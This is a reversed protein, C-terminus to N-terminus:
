IPGLRVLAQGAEVRDGPAVLVDLVVGAVRAQVVRGAGSSPPRPARRRPAGTCHQCRPTTPDAATWTDREAWVLGCSSRGDDRIRHAIGPRGPARRWPPQTRRPSRGSRPGRLTTVNRM